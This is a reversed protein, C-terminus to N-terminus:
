RRGRGSAPAASTASCERSIADHAASFGSLPFQDTANGRGGPAPGRAVAEGRARRLATVVTHRDEARVYAGEGSTYLKAETEGISLTVEPANRPYTHGARIAVEDRSQAGRHTVMLMVGQRSPQSRTARAFAYCVKQGGATYAAATWAGFSGLRRPAAATGSTAQRTAAGSAQQALAAGGGGALAFGVLVLLPLLVARRIAPHLM